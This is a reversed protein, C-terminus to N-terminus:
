PAFAAADHLDCILRTVADDEYPVIPEALFAKLPRDALTMQARAREEANAAAIGALEDGSRAPSAKALLERLNMRIGTGEPAAAGIGRRAGAGAPAPRNGRLLGPGAPVLDGSRDRGQQLGPQPVAHVTDIGCDGRCGGCGCNGGPERLATGDSPLARATRHVVGDASHVRDGRRLGGHQATRSR